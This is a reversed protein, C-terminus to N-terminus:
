FRIAIGFMGGFSVEEPAFWLGRSVWLSVIIAFKTLLRAILQM